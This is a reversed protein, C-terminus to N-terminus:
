EDLYFPFKLHSKGPRVKRKKLNKPKSCDEAEDDVDVVKSAGNKKGEQAFPIDTLIGAFNTQKLRDSASVLVKLEKKEEVDADESDADDEQGRLNFQKFRKIGTNKRRNSKKLM